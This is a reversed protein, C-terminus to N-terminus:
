RLLGLSTGPTFGPFLAATDAFGMAGSMLESLVQRYDTTIALDAISGSRM